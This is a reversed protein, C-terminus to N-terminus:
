QRLNGYRRFYCMCQPLIEKKEKEVPDYVPLLSVGM